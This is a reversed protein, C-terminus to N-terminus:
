TGIAVNMSSNVAPGDIVSAQYSVACPPKSRWPLMSRNPVPHALTNRCGNARRGAPHRVAGSASAEIESAAEREVMETEGGRSLAPTSRAPHGCWRNPALPASVSVCGWSASKRERVSQDMLDDMGLDVTALSTPQVAFDAAAELLQV